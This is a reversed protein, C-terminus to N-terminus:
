LPSANESPNDNVEKVRHQKHVMKERTMQFDPLKRAVKCTENNHVCHYCDETAHEQTQECNGCSQVLTELHSLVANLLLSTTDQITADQQV